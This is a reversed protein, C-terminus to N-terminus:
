INKAMFLKSGILLLILYWVVFYLTFAGVELADIPIQYLVKSAYHFFSFDPLVKTVATLLVKEFGDEMKLVLFHIQEMNQAVLIFGIAQTLALARSSYVSFLL